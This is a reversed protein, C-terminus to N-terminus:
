GIKDLQKAVHKSNEWLRCICKYFLPPPALVNVGVQVSYEQLTIRCKIFHPIQWTEMAIGDYRLVHM